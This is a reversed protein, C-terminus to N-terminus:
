EIAEVIKTHILPRFRIHKNNDRSPYVRNSLLIVFLEKEKDVWISTGTFGTHGFSKDSFKNGCSPKNGGKLDWGYGRECKTFERNTWNNIIEKNFINKNSFWGDNLLTQVYIALDHGTSFLGAHGSVGGFFYANEDHVEGQILRKRFTKDIETPAIKAKIKKGPNFMTSNM